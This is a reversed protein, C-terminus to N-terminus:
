KNCVLVGISANTLAEAMKITVYGNGVTVTKFKAPSTTGNDCMPIIQSTTKINDNTGSGSPIRVDGDAAVTVGTRGVYQVLESKDAKGSIDVYGGFDDFRYDPTSTTSVNIVAIHADAPIVDDASFQSTWNGIDAAAITGGDTCLFFKDENEAVLLSSTLEAFTKAGGYRVFSKDPAKNKWKSTSSDYTLLEGDTASTIQVDSLDDIDASSSMKGNIQTQIDSTVGHVYNLEPITATLSDVGDDLTAAKDVIKRDLPDYDAKYMDGGGGGGGGGSSAITITKNTTNPTLTVNAGAVFTVGDKGSANIDTTTGLNTVSVKTVADNIDGGIDSGNYQPRGGSESIKDLESKNSHTHKKDVADALDTENQTYEDLLPKNPHTHDDIVAQALDSNAQTYTDLLAKNDHTHADTELTSINGEATALDESIDNIVGQVTTGSRGIPAVAGVSQAATTAELEDILGNYRPIIVNKAPADFEQKLATASITPQNPLTTAGRSDRLTDSIRNTFAM